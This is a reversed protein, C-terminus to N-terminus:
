SEVEIWAEVGRGGRSHIGEIVPAPVFEGEHNGGCTCGGKGDELYLSFHTWGYRREVPRLVAKLRFQGIQRCDLEHLLYTDNM